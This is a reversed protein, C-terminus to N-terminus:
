DMWEKKRKKLVGGRQIKIKVDLSEFGKGQV